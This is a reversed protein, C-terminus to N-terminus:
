LVIIRTFLMTLIMTPNIATIKGSANPNEAHVATKQSRIM